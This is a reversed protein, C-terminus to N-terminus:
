YIFQMVKISHMVRNKGYFEHVVTTTKLSQREKETSNSQLTWCQTPQWFFLRSNRTHGNQKFRIFIVKVITLVKPVVRGSEECDARPSQHWLGEDDSLGQPNLLSLFSQKTTLINM